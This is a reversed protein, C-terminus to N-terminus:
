LISIFNKSVPFSLIYWAFLSILTLYQQQDNKRLLNQIILYMEFIVAVLTVILFRYYENPSRAAFTNVIFSLYHFIIILIQLIIFLMLYDFIYM